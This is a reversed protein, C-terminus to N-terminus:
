FDYKINLKDFIKKFEDIKYESSTRLMHMIFDGDEYLCHDKGVHRAFDGHYSNFEKCRVKNYHEKYKVELMRCIAEQDWVCSNKCDEYISFCDKLFNRTIDNNIFLMVGSNEGRKENFDANENGVTISKNSIFKEIKIDHNAFCADADIFFIYDYEMDLCKLILLIKSWAPHKDKDLIETCVYFDYGNKKCYEKNILISYKAYSSINETALMTVLIKSNM